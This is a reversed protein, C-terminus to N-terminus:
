KNKTTMGILNYQFELLTHHNLLFHTLFFNTEVSYDHEALKSQIDEEIQNLRPFGESRTNSTYRTFFDMSQFQLKTPLVIWLSVKRLAILFALFSSVSFKVQFKIEDTQCQLITKNVSLTSTEWTSQETIFENEEKQVINKSLCQLLKMFESLRREQVYFYKKTSFSASNEEVNVHGICLGGPLAAVFKNIDFSIYMICNAVNLSQLNGEM